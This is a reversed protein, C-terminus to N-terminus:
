VHFKPGCEQYNNVGKYLLEWSYLYRKMIGAEAADEM